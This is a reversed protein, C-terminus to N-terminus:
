NSIGLAEARAVGEPTFNWANEQVEVYGADRLTPLLTEMEDESADTWDDTLTWARILAQDPQM